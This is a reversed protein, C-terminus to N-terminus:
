RTASSAVGGRWSLAAASYNPKFGSVVLHRLQRNAALRYPLFFLPALPAEARLAVQFKRLLRRKRTANSEYEIARLLQDFAPSAMRTFNGAGIASSHLIPVFNFAFPSGKIVGAHLDFDGSRLAKVFTSTETPRLEIPIGLQAAAARFQLGVSAFMNDDARYRFTLHLPEAVGARYWAGAQQRWGAQRLLAAARQPNYVPLPLSDNYYPSSPPLLGVTRRGQNLQTAQQLAAPDFLQSLAQRTYRDRLQPRSTNFGVMVLDYSTGTYFVLKSQAASSNKLQKFTPAPVQALVDLEGRRLALAAAAPDPVILFQLQRARAQLVAPAHLLKDAWWTPKRQFVLARNTQWSALRYPGCGPLHAPQRAVNAQQYRTAFALLAPATATAKSRLAALSFGRLVQKADLAAEPLIPFDGSVWSYELAQGRCILTIHRADASDLQYGKIFEIQPSAGENPLGTCCMLKLTFAVDTALVPHGDDWTAEPRLHYDFTSLSDGLLTRTPLAAALAPVYTNAGLDLQLLGLHLLNAADVAPQNSSLMLPDLSEPDRSWRVRVPSDAERLSPATCAYLLLWLM